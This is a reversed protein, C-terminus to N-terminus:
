LEDSRGRESDDGAAAEEADAAAKEEAEKKAAEEQEKRRQELLKRREERKRERKLERRAAEEANKAEFDRKVQEIEEDSKKTFGKEIMMAHMEDKEKYESLTVKEKEEEGDYITLVAKKGGM